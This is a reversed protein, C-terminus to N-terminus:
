RPRLRKGTAAELQRWGLEILRRTEESERLARAIEARFLAGRERAEQRREEFTKTQTAM